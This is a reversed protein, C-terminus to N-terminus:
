GASHAQLPSLSSSFSVVLYVVDGLGAVVTEGVSPPSTLVESLILVSSLVLLVVSVLIPVSPLVLTLTLVSPTDAPTLTKLTLEATERIIGISTEALNYM